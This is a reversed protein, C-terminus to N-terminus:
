LFRHPETLFTIERSVQEIEVENIKEIMVFVDNVKGMIFPFSAERERKTKKQFPSQKTPQKRRGKIVNEAKNCQCKNWIAFMYQISTEWLSPLRSATPESLLM